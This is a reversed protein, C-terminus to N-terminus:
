DSVIAALRKYQEGTWDAAEEWQDRDALSFPRVVGVTWGSWAWTRAKAGGDTEQDGMVERIRSTYLRMRETRGSEAEGARVHLSIQEEAVHIWIRDGFSNLQATRQSPGRWGSKQGKVGGTRERLLRWFAVRKEGQNPLRIEIAAGCRSGMALCFEASESYDQRYPYLVYDDHGPIARMTCSGAKTGPPFRSAPHINGKIAKGSLHEVNAPDADLLAAAVHLVIAAATNERRWAGDGIRWELQDHSESDTPRNPDCWPWRDLAREALDEARRELAEEDWSEERALRRTMGIPSQEYMRRKEAFPRAGLRANTADGSLTLNALVHRARGHFEPADEGLDRRWADSLKQPMIHELSLRDRAPAEERHEAEMLACLVATSARSSSGGYAKRSRIGERVQEDTPVGVRTHRRRRIRGVWHDAFPRGVQPGPGHALDTAARNVGTVPRDALWLRTLWAGIAEIAAALEGAAAPQRGGPRQDNPRSGEAGEASTNDRNRSADHLLRLTLPRHAGLGLERLHRLAREVRLVGAHSLDFHTCLGRNEAHGAAGTLLSYLEAYGVLEHCVASRDQNGTSQLWRRFEEYVRDGGVLRGTKWRLLDRLFLDIRESEYTADLIKEIRLWGNDHLEQQTEDDLGMLLWNKVKESETLPRGTANLSEFIQQPDDDRGLGVSVVRFRQLGRLLLALDNKAMLRRAIRCAQPVAGPGNSIEGDLFRRYDEEDGNQLRLKRRLDRSKGPNLLRDNRIIEATWGDCDGDPGLEEAICALLISVTTLRQQGDVVRYRSVVGAAGPEPFTLLTGGYHAADNEKAGGIAVLDEVLREIDTQGWRYRRQWRPVVYQTQGNLLDLFGMAKAHM